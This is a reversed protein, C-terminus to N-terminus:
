NGALEEVDDNSLGNLKQAVSFVRDIPKAAKNGLAQIDAETFLPVGKEDCASAVVFRARINRMRDSKDGKKDSVLAAELADREAGSLSRVFVEGGWEPVKVPKLPLSSADPASLIQDRSLAM